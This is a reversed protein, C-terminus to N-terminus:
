KGNSSYVIKGSDIAVFKGNGYTVSYWNGSVPLTTENWTIGDDSYIAKSHNNPVAVFKGNGYTISLWNGSVPLTTTFWDVGPIYQKESFIATLKHDANVLFTYLPTTSVVFGNEKWGDFIFNQEEHAEAVVTVTMLDTAIGGGSVIGGDLPEATLTITRVNEPLSEIETKIARIRTPFDNATIAETTGDKERIADAIEKLKNEQISM